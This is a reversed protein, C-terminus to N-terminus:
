GKACWLSCVRTASVLPGPAAAWALRLAGVLLRPLYRLDREVNPRYLEDIDFSESGAVAEEDAM